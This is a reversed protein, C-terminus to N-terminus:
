PYGYHQHVATFFRSTSSRACPGGNLYQYGCGVAFDVKCADLEVPLAGASHALDWIVLAGMAHAARTIELM